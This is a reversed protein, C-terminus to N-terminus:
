SFPLSNITYDYLTYVSLRKPGSNLLRFSFMVSFKYICKPRFLDTDAWIRGGKVGRCVGSRMVRYGPLRTFHPLGTGPERTDWGTGPHGLWNGPTGVRNGTGMVRCAQPNRSM